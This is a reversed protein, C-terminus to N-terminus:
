GNFNLFLKRSNVPDILPQRALVKDILLKLLLVDNQCYAIVEDFKGQQWLVPALAGHGTKQGVGNAKCVANLSYGRYASTFKVPFPDLGKAKYIERLLDFTTKVRIGNKGCVSDDFSISNFGIISKSSDALDQFAHFNDQLFVHFRSDLYSYACIVSIGVNEHDNWGSCYEIGPILDGTPIAKLIEIDFLLISKKRM